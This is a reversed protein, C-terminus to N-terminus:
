LFVLRIHTLLYAVLGVFLLISCPVLFFSFFSFCTLVKILNDLKGSKKLRNGLYIRGKFLMVSDLKGLIQKSLMIDGLVEVLIVQYDVFLSQLYDNLVLKM